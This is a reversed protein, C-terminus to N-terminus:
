IVKYKGMETKKMKADLNTIDDNGSKREDLFIDLEKVSFVLRRGIKRYPLINLNQYVWNVSMGIYEATEKASLTNKAKEKESSIEAITLKVTEEIINKIIEEFLIERGKREEGNFYNKAYFFGM